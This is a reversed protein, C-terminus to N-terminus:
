SMILIIGHSCSPLYPRLNLTPNDANDFVLLWEERQRSFWDLTAKESDCIGQSLAINILDASITEKTSADVYFVGSFRSRYSRLDLAFICILSLIHNYRPDQPDVQCANVFKFAIQSKGAGGLGYLVFVHQMGLDNFFYKRM